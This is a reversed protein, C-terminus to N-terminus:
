SRASGISGATFRQQTLGAGILDTVKNALLIARQSQRQTTRLQKVDLRVKGVKPTTVRLPTAPAETSAPLAGSVALGPFLPRGALSTGAALNGGTLSNIRKWTAQARALLAKSIRENIRVQRLTVAFDASGGKAKPIRLPRPTPATQPTGPAGGVWGIGAQFASPGFAGACLDGAVIGADIWDNAANLRRLAAADIRQQIQLARRSLTIAGKKGKKRPATAGCVPNGGAPAAPPAAPSPGPAPAPAPATPCTAPDDAFQDPLITVRLTAGAPLNAQPNFPLSDSFPFGYAQATKAIVAAYQSYAPFPAPSTRAQDFAPQKWWGPSPAGTRDDVTNGYRGGWYGLGFGSIVRNYIQGYVDNNVGNVVTAGQTYPGAARYIDDTGLPITIPDGPGAPNSLTGTLTISGGSVTGSYTAVTTANFDTTVSLTQGELSAVYADLSPYTQPFSPEGLKSPGVVRLFHGAPARRVAAGPIQELQYAISGTDCVPARTAIPAGISDFTDIRTPIGYQDIYTNDAVGSATFEVFGYRTTSVNPDNSNAPNPSNQQIGNGYGILLIGAPFTDSVTIQGPLSSLPVPTNAPLQAPFAPPPSNGSDLTVYVQDDPVGSQNVVELTMADAGAALALLGAAGLAASAIRRAVGRRRM